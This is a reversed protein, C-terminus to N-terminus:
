KREALPTDLQQSLEQALRLAVEIAGKARQALSLERTSQAYGHPDDKFEPSVAVPADLSDQMAGNLVAGEVRGAYAALMTLGYGLDDVSIRAVEQATDADILSPERVAIKLKEQQTPM